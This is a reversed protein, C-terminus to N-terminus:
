QIGFMFMQAVKEELSMTALLENSDYVYRINNNEDKSNYADVENMFQKKLDTIYLEPEKEFFEDVDMMAGSLFNLDLLDYASM